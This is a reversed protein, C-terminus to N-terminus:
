MMFSENEGSRPWVVFALTAGMGEWISRDDHM